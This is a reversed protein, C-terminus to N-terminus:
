HITLTRSYYMNTSKSHKKRMGVLIITPLILTVILWWLEPSEGFLSLERNKLYEGQMSLAEYQADLLVLYLITSLISVLCLTKIIKKM